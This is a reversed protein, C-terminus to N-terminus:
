SALEALLDVAAPLAPEAQGEIRGQFMVEVRDLLAGASQRDHLVILAAGGESGRVVEAVVENVLAVGQRDLSNYPEDLLLVRPRQMLLRALSLRRQMGSSFTRVREDADRLLGVRDLAADIGAADRGLMTAAFVLNERATLDDYLGPHYTMLAIQGRVWDARERVDEGLVWAKGSTPRILTSFVRLLTSKGSGNHGELGVVEGPAVSINAGRLAWRRGYRRTVGEAVLATAGAGHNLPLRTAPM